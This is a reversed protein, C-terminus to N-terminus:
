IRFMQAAHINTLESVCKLEIIVADEVLFDVRQYGLEVTDYAVKIEAQELYKINNLKFEHAMAREYIKEVFGLGLKNHMRMAIGIIRETLADLNKRDMMVGGDAKNIPTIQPIAIPTM